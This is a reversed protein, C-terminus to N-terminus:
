RSGGFAATLDGRVLTGGMGEHQAGFFAGTLIGADGGTQAFVNGQVDVTYALDGDGWMVGTGIAGPAANAAWSELGTFNMDGRLSTLHISLDAAGAVAQAQPTLGLLRGAWSATGSLQANDALDSGPIPGQAWPSVFDNREAVGFAVDHSNNPLDLVGKLHVSTDEWPGLQTAIDEAAVGPALRTYAAQLGERDLPYIFHGPPGALHTLTRDYSIASVMDPHALFGLAHLIEHALYGIQAEQLELTWDRGPYMRRLESLDLRESTLAVRDIRDPDFSILGARLFMKFGSGDPEFAVMPTYRGISSGRGVSTWDEEPAMHIVLNGDAVGREYEASGWPEPYPAPAGMRLRWAPPLAANVARIARVALNEYEASTGEVLRVVPMGPPLVVSTEDYVGRRERASHIPLGPFGGGWGQAEEANEKLWAVVQARGVGDRRTGRSLAVGDHTAIHSLAGTPAVDAGVHRIGSLTRQLSHQGTDLDVIPAQFAGGLTEVLVPPKFQDEEVPVEPMDVETIPSKERRSGGFAAIMDTRKVTGAMHEHDPGLFSGVVHGPEHGEGRVNGFWNNDVTVKYDIDRTPFWREESDSEFRNLFYIDRFRLDQENAPDALTALCVQLEADGAIPSPGSHGLLAGSWTATGYLRTNHALVTDPAVGTAWPQPLGNFLAVGFRMASDESQGLLHFTTDSWESWDNYLNTLQSMYMIQLVERDIKSIVYGLNPIYEGSGGMISDPFEVSDVHGWIGLAHLFEHIITSRPHMYESVDLDDPIYLVASDTRGQLTRRDSVACAVATAGCKSAIAYPTELMVVIEGYHAYDSTRTDGLVIQFEPPLADNLILISDYLAKFLEKNKALAFEEDVHVIPQVFFPYFGDGRLKYRDAGDRTQLDQEYNELREVGAGDRSVGMLLRIDDVTGVRRLPERPQLDGGIFVERVSDDELGYVYVNSRTQHETYSRRESAPNSYDLPATDTTVPGDGSGCAGLALLGILAPAILRNM